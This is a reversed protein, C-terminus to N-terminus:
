RGEGVCPRLASVTAIADSGDQDADASEQDRYYLVGDDVEVAVLEGESAALWQAAADIAEQATDYLSGWEGASRLASEYCGAYTVAYQTEM